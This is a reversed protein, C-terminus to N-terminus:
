RKEKTMTLKDMHKEIMWLPVPKYDWADIGVHLARGVLKKTSHTHGHVLFNTGNDKHRRDPYRTDWGKFKHWWYKWLPDSFPYHSVIVRHGKIDMSMQYVALQFGMNLLTGQKPDHNGIVAIKTGNLQNIIERTKTTNAFTTDGVFICTDEPKVMKNYNKILAQHM